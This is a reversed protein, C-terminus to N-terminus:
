ALCQTCDARYGCGRCRGVARHSRAVELAVLDARMCGLTDILVQELEQSYEVTYVGDDYKILGHTPRAGFHEEVLACYAALQLQHSRYSGGPPLAGSKVEVPVHCHGKRVLYDPKGSLCLRVSFLPRRVRNWGFTDAYVVRGDPLGAQQRIRRGLWILLLACFLLIIAFRLM